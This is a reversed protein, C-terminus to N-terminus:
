NLKAQLTSTKSSLTEYIKLSQNLHNLFDAYELLEFLSTGTNKLAPALNHDKEWNIQIQHMKRANQLSILANVYQQKKDSM